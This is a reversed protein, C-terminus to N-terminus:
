FEFGVGAGLYDAKNATSGENTRHSYEAKLVIGPRPKYNLGVTLAKRAYRAIRAISGETGAHTDYVEYRGFLDLRNGGSQRGLLSFVNYGAEVFYSKARSGVPTRSTGLVDGNFTNLNARTIAESNEIRGVLAQGRLTLPGVEYRGHVEGLTVRARTSLNTRARNPASDGTYFAGGLLVGPALSYEAHAVLAMASANRFELKRQMGGRIFEHGSFGTSDLATVVQLQYRAQGWTGLLSAGTEHWVVPLLSTEALSRDITFYETPQHYLNVMGVPVVMEGIRFNVQPSHSYQLYLQELVIEGGKEIESEFEGAEEAEYEVTAGTGGHEFEIEGAFSWGGGFNYHPTLVFRALDTRARKTSTTSQANAFQDFRQYNMDAYGGIRLGHGIAQSDSAALAPRSTTPAAGYPATGAVTTEGKPAGVATPATGPAAAVARQRAEISEALSDLQRQQRELEARQRELDERQREIQQQQERLRLLLERVTPAPEQAAAAIPALALAAAM